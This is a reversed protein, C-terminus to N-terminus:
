ICQNIPDNAVHSFEIVLEAARGLPQVSIVPEIGGGELCVFSKESVSLWDVVQTM